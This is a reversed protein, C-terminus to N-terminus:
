EADGLVWDISVGERAARDRGAALLEPTLDLATVRAGARAAPIAVNGDGCAVDLLRVGPAAGARRATALGADAHMRALTPYDGAAWVIRAADKFARLDREGADALRATQTGPPPAARHARALLYIAPVRIPEGDPLVNITDIRGAGAAIVEFRDPSFLGLLEEETIQGPPIMRM